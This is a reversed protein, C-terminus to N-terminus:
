IILEKLFYDTDKKNWLILAKTSLFLTYYMTSVSLISETFSNIVTTIYCASFNSLNEKIYIDPEYKTSM